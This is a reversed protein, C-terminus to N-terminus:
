YDVEETVLKDKIITTLHNGATTKIYTLIEKDRLITDDLEVSVVSLTRMDILYKM